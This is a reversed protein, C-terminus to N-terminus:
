HMKHLLSNFISIIASSLLWTIPQQIILSPTLSTAIKLIIINIVLTFLGLTIWILPLFVLRLIPKVLFNLLTIILALLILEQLSGRFYFDNLLENLVRQCLLIALSNLIVGWFLKKLFNM